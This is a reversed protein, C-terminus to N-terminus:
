QHPSADPARDPPQRTQVAPRPRSTRTGIRPLASARGRPMPGGTRPASRGARWDDNPKRGRRRSADTTSWFVFRADATAPRYRRMSSVRPEFRVFADLAKRDRWASLTFFTRPLATNLSVGLAGVARLVQQRIAMAARLFGPVRRISDLRLLSAMVVVEHHNAAVGSPEVWPLPPM